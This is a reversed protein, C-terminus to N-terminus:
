NNIIIVPYGDIPSQSVSFIGEKAYLDHYIPTFRQSFVCYSKVVFFCKICIIKNGNDRQSLACSILVDNFLFVQTTPSSLTDSVFQETLM